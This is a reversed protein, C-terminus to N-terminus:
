QTKWGQKNTAELGMRQEPCVFKWQDVLNDDFWTYITWEKYPFVKVLNTNTPVSISCFAQM